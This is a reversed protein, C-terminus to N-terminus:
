PTIYFFNSGISYSFLAQQHAIRLLLYAGIFAGIIAPIGFRLLAAKDAQKGTLFLKFINNLLHVLGTLAIAIDVPFFIAFIPMLITGLGFGSFFTLLSVLLSCIGIILLEM